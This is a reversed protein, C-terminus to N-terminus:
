GVVSTGLSEWRGHVVVRGHGVPVVIRLPGRLRRSPARHTTSRMGSDLMLSMVTAVSLSWPGVPVVSLGRGARCEAAGGLDGRVVCGSSSLRETVGGGM